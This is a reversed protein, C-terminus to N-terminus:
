PRRGTAGPATTDGVDNMEAGLRRAEDLKRYLTRESLGLAQALSARDRTRVSAWRLYAAEVQDLPTIETVAFAESPPSAHEPHPQLTGDIEPALHEVRLEDDSSLLAMREVVNRLERVNGPWDYRVLRDLAAPEIHKGPHRQALFAECLIPIDGRRERLPPL